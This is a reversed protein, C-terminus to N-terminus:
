LRYNGPNSKELKKYIPVIVIESWNDPLDMNAYMQNLHTLILPKCDDPFNVWVENPIGHKGPAKGRSLEKITDNLEHM